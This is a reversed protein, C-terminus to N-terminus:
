EALLRPDSVVHIPDRPQRPLPSRRPKGANLVAAFERELRRRYRGQGRYQLGLCERCQPYRDGDLYLHQRISGDRPCRWRLESGGRWLRRRLFAVTITLGSADTILVADQDAAPAFFQGRGEGPGTTYM